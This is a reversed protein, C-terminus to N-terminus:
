QRLGASAKSLLRNAIDQKGHVIRLIQVTDLIAVYRHIVVYPAVVGIRVNEGLDPRPAGSKPFRELQSFLANFLGAYKEVSKRGSQEALFAYIKETDTDAAVSLAVLAM